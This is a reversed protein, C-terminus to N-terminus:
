DSDNTLDVDPQVAQTLDVFAGGSGSPQQVAQAGSGSPQQVAQAGSGSPQQVAQAGSGSAQQVAQASEGFRVRKTVVPISAATANAPVMPPFDGPGAQKKPAPGAGGDSSSRKNPHPSPLPVSPMKPPAQPASSAHEALIVVMNKVNVRAEMSKKVLQATMDGKHDRLEKEIASLANFADLVLESEAIQEVSKGVVEVGIAKIVRARLEVRKEQAEPKENPNQELYDEFSDLEDFFPLVARDLPM